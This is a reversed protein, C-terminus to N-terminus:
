GLPPARPGAAGHLLARVHEHSAAARQGAVLAMDAIGPRVGRHAPTGHGMSRLVQCYLDDHGTHCETEPAEVHTGVDLTRAELHADLAPLLFVGIQAIALALSSSGRATTRWRKM